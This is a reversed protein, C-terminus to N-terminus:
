FSVASERPTLAHEQETSYGVGVPSHVHLTTQGSAGAEMLEHDDMITM